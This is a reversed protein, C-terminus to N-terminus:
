AFTPYDALRPLLYAYQKHRITAAERHAGAIPRSLNDKSPLITPAETERHPPDAPLLFPDRAPLCGRKSPCVPAPYPTKPKHPDLVITVRAADEAPEASDTISFSQGAQWFCGTRFDIKVEAASPTTASQVGSEGQAAYGFVVGVRM